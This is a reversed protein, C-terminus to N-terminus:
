QSKIKEFFHKKLKKFNDISVIEDAEFSVNFVSKLKIFLTIHRISDWNTPQGYKIEDLKLEPKLNFVQRVTKEFNLELDRNEPQAKLGMWLHRIKQRDVKGRNTLPINEIQFWFNPIRYSPLFNQCWIELESDLLDHTKGVYAAVMAQGLVEHPVAFVCVDVIQKNKLLTQEVEIPLIKLGGKNIVDDHRGFISLGNNTIEGLDGTVFWEDSMSTKNLDVLNLYGSMLSQSKVLVVGRGNEDPNQIKFESGWGFGVSSSGSSSTMEYGSVWSAFETLGYVNFIKASPAWQQIINFTEKSFLASACHIRKLSKNQPSPLNKLIQWVSPVSSLFSIQYQDIATPIKQANLQTLSQSIFLHCGNLLPFLSNGILGHGFFTPLVCLTRTCDELSINNKLEALKNQISSRTHVVAKPIGSTGSTYLILCAEASYESKNSLQKLNSNDEAIQFQASCHEALASIESLPNSKDVPVACAGLSWIALLDVFFSSSNAHLLLIRDNKKMGKKSFYEARNKIQEFLQQGSFTQQTQLDTLQGINNLIPM